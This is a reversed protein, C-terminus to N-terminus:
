KGLYFIIESAKGHDTRLLCHFLYFYSFFIQDCHMLYLKVM